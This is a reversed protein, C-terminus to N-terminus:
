AWCIPVYWYRVTAVAVPVSVKFMDQRTTFEKRDDMSTVEIRWGTMEKRKIEEPLEPIHFTVEKSKSDFLSCSVLLSVCLIILVKKM